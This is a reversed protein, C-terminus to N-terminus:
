KSAITDDLVAVPATIPNVFLAPDVYVHNLEMSWHLHPGTSFGTSGVKGILDGPKVIQGKKVTIKSLHYYISFLQCGHDVFVTNGSINLPMALTVVGSQSARVPSGAALAIDIGSHRSTSSKNVTRLTGFQTSIRGVAPRIFTGTWLPHDASKSLGKEWHPKDLAWLESSRKAATKSSVKMNQIPYKRTLVRINKQVSYYTQGNRQAKIQLYYSGPKQSRSIPLLLLRNNGSPYFDARNSLNTKLFVDDDPEIDKLYISLYEGQGAQPSNFFHLSPQSVSKGSDISNDQPTHNTISPAASVNLLFFMSVLSLVM